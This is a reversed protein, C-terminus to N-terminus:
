RSDRSKGDDGRLEDLPLKVDVVTGQGPKSKIEAEGGYLLARQRIGHLGFSEKSIQGSDFGVGEDRVQIRLWGDQQNLEVSADPSQSHQIVNNLSEQIIRFLTSELKPNLRDFRVDAEFDIQCDGRNVFDAVLQEIARVIGEEDLIIPRLGRILGRAELIADALNSIGDKLLSERRSVLGANHAVAEFKSRAGIVLQVFGDHLDHALFQREEEQTEIMNRLLNQEEMLENEVRLQATRISSIFLTVVSIIGLSLQTTLLVSNKDAHGFAGLGHVTGWVSILSVLAVAISAGLARFYFSALMLTPLILLMEFHIGHRSSSQFFSLLCVSLVLGFVLVDKATNRIPKRSYKSRCLAVVFPAIVILGTTNGLAWTAWLERFSSWPASGSLCLSSVGILASTAACSFTGTVLFWGFEKHGDLMNSNPFVRRFLWVAVFAELVNGLTIGLTASWPLSEIDIAIEALAVAPLVRYGFVLVAAIAIGTPPWVPSISNHAFALTLGLRAALYYVAAVGLLILIRSSSSPFKKKM